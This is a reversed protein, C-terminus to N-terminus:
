RDLARWVATMNLGAAEAILAHHRAEDSDGVHALAIGLYAHALSDDEDLELARRCSQAAAEFQGFECFLKGQRAWAESSEEDLTLVQGYTTFAERRKGQREFVRGLSLWLGANDQDASIFMLCTEEAEALEGTECLGRVLRVQALTDNPALDVATRFSDLGARPWGLAIFIEGLQVHALVHGEDLVLAERTALEAKTWKKQRQYAEGLAVLLDASVEARVRGRELVDAAAAADGSDMLFAAVDMYTQPDTPNAAILSEGQVRSDIPAAGAGAAGFLVCGSAFVLVALRSGSRCNM